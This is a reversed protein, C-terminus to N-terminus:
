EVARRQRQSRRLLREVTEKPNLLLDLMKASVAKALKIHDLSCGVENLRTKHFNWFKKDRLNILCIALFRYYEELLENLRRDLEDASLCWPGYARLDGIKSSLYANLDRSTTTIQQHHLREYSLVQHVFGFDCSRLCEFCASVDAEATSNPYFCDRQRVLDSRYLNSTPNGLVDLTGLLHARSIERGSVVTREYPLGYTRVLWKDGGGSLQYSGVIGVSPNAQAVQIMREICEPFLWDDGSLLKCYQSNASILRVARNHNDIIQLLKENRYLCIRKNSEAYRRAIAYTDDTSNNDVIIYEWNQYTQALVSEICEPLYRALNYVPTVVSVLPGSNINM